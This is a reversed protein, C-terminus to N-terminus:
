RLEATRSSNMLKKLESGKNRSQWTNNLISVRMNGKQENLFYTFSNCQRGGCMFFM